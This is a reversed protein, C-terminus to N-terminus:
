RRQFEHMNMPLLALSHCAADGAGAFTSYNQGGIPSAWYGPEIARYGVSSDNYDYIWLEGYRTSCKIVTIDAARVNPASPQHFSREVTYNGAQAAASTLLTVVIAFCISKKMKSKGM